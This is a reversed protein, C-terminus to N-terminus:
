DKDYETKYRRIAHPLIAAFENVNFPGNLNNEILYAFVTGPKDDHYEQFFKFPVGKEHLKKGVADIFKDYTERDDIGRKVVVALVDHKASYTGAERIITPKRSTSDANQANSIGPLILGSISIFFLFAMSSIKM